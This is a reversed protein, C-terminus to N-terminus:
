KKEQIKNIITEYDKLSYGDVGKEEYYRDRSYTTIYARQSSDVNRVVVKKVQTCWILSIPMGEDILESVIRLIAMFSTKVFRSQVILHLESISRNKDTSCQKNRCAKDTYSAVRTEIVYKLMEKRTSFTKSTSIYIMNNRTLYLPLLRTVQILIVNNM